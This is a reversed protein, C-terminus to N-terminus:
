PIVGWRSGRVLADVCLMALAALVFWTHLPERRESREVMQVPAELRDIVGYISDLDAATGAHFYEGGTLRAIGGLVTEMEARPDYGDGYLRRTAVRSSDEPPLVSIAHVRVDLA